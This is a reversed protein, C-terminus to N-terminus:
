VGHSRRMHNAYCLKGDKTTCIWAAKPSSEDMSAMADVCDSCCSTTKISCETCRGQKLYSSVEGKIKRRKKTPTIHSNVGGRPVGTGPALTPSASSDNATRRPRQGEYDYTNDILEESLLTYFEKQSESAQTCATFALWSDLVTMRFLDHQGAEVLWTSPTQKGVHSYGAPPSQPRRDEWMCQLVKRLGETAECDSCSTRRWCEADHGSRGESLMM